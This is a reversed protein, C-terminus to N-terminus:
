KDKQITLDRFVRKERWALISMLASIAVLLEILFFWPSQAWAALRHDIMIDPYILYPFHSVTYGFLAFFYQLMVLIFIWQYKKLFVLTVAILLSILSLMFTWSHDLTRLFHEPNQMELGLFVLGSTFVMPMSLFLAKNRFHAVLEHDEIKSAFLVMYMASIYFISTFAVLMVSWFYFNSFLRIVFPFLASTGVDSFGGESIVLAISLVAPILIGTIGNGALFVGRVKDEKPLLETLAFFTGKIVTLFIALVGCFVLPTQFNLIMEPSLGIIATFILVFGINMLESIPSLWCQLPAYLRDLRKVTQGYFLYFGTGFDISAAIMYGYVVVWLVVLILQQM